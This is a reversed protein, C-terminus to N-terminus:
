HLSSVYEKSPIPLVRDAGSSGTRLRKARVTRGFLTLGGGTQFSGRRPLVLVHFLAMTRSPLVSTNTHVYPPTTTSLLHLLFFAKYM